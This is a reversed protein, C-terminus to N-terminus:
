LASNVPLNQKRVQATAISREIESNLQAIKQTQAQKDNQKGVQKIKQLRRRFRFVDSLMCQKLQKNFAQTNLRLIVILYFAM